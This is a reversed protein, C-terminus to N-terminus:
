SASPASRGAAPFRAAAEGGDGSGRDRRGGEEGVPPIPRSVGDVTRRPGEEEEGSTVAPPSRLAAAAPHFKEPVCRCRWAAAPPPLLRRRSSCSRIDEVPTRPDDDGEEHINEHDEALTRNGEGNKVPGAAGGQISCSVVRGEEDREAQAHVELLGNEIPVGDSSHRHEEGLIKMEDSSKGGGECSSCLSPGKRDANGACCDISVDPFSVDKRSSDNGVHANNADRVEAAPVLVAAENSRIWAGMRRCYVLPAHEGPARKRGVGGRCRCRRRCSRGGNRRAEEEEPGQITRCVCPEAGKSRGAAWCAVEEGRATWAGEGAAGGRLVAGAAGNKAAAAGRSDRAGGRDEEEAAAGAGDEEPSVSRGSRQRRAYWWCPTSLGRWLNEDEEM